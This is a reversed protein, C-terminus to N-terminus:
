FKVYLMIHFIGNDLYCGVTANIKKSFALISQMGLGHNGSKKSKPLKTQSDLLIEEKYENKSQIFLQHDTCHIKMEITRKEKEFTKVCQIANEFLNAIVLTLEYDNVPIEKPIRADLDVQINHSLAKDMMNSLITNVILNSCYETVKNEDAMRLIHENVEKIEEYKKQELLSDIIRSYHRIDHHLIKMNHEAQEILYQRNELGRIYSEQLMNEWYVAIRKTESELYGLVVIYSVFMTLVIFITGPINDPNDYLTKPFFAIFSFSCYFFVPILCLKWWGKEYEKEQFKLCTERITLSLFILIGLHIATGGLIAISSNGTCIKIISTFVAGAIVYSSASLGVFLAQCNQKRATFFATSQTAIIQLITVVVYCLSSDPFFIFKFADLIHLSLFLSFGTLIRIIKSWRPAIFLYIFLILFIHSITYSLATFYNM